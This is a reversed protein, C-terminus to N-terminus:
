RGTLELVPALASPRRDVPLPDVFHVPCGLARAGGDATRSDGVMLVEAPARGLLTCAARFIAADPKQAGVEYSLVYADVLADLGHARFVPRLDWGINSVVAVPVGRGRLARLTAATDPYPRWAAPSMHREYLAEVLEPDGLGAERTLATYVARHGEPTLDREDWLGVLDDPVRVPDPGGPQAGYRTLRRVLDDFAATGRAPGGRPGGGSALVADLWEEVPEIRLLTGSFDFMVGNVATHIM